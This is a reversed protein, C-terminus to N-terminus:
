PSASGADFLDIVGALELVRRVPPKPSRLRLSGGVGDLANRLSVLAAVGAADIFDLRSLDATVHAPADADDLGEVSARFCGTTAVDLEGSIALLVSEGVRLVEARFADPVPRDGVVM